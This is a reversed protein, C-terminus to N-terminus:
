GRRWPAVWNEKRCLDDFELTFITLMDENTYLDKLRPTVIDSPTVRTAEDGM